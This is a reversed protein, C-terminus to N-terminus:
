PISWGDLLAGYLSLTSIWFLMVLGGAGVDRRAAFAVNTGTKLNPGGGALVMNMEVYVSPEAILGAFVQAVEMGTRETIERVGPHGM